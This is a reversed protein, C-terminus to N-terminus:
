RADQAEHGSEGFENRIFHRSRSMKDPTTRGQMIMSKALASIRGVRAFRETGFAQENFLQELTARSFFKVHGYDRLPHWHDDFKNTLAIALNKLFGHYPTTVIFVGGPRLAEKARQFLQRPLLLHEIVEVAIVADFSQRSETPLPAALNSHAFPIEPFSRSAVAIGSESADMGTMSFGERQLAATLAGNGCGLDLVTNAGAQKLWARITPFLYDHAPTPAPGNWLFEGANLSLASDTVANM